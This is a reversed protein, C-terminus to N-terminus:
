DDKWHERGLKDIVAGNEMVTVPMVYEEIELADEYDREHAIFEHLRTMHFDVIELQAERETSFISPLGEGNRVSVTAGQCFTNIFVCFGRQASSAAPSQSKKNRRPRRTPPRLQTELERIIREYHNAIANAENTDSCEEAIFDDRAAHGAELYDATQRWSDARSQLGEIIQGIDNSDLRLTHISGM